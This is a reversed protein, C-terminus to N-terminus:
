GEIDDDSHMHPRELTSILYRVLESAHHARSFHAPLLRRLDFVSPSITETIKSYCTLDADENVMADTLREMRADLERQSNAIAAAEFLYADRGTQGTATRFTAPKSMANETTKPKHATKGEGLPRENRYFM